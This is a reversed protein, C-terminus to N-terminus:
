LGTRLLDELAQLRTHICADVDGDAASVWCDGSALSPDAILNIAAHLRQTHLIAEIGPRDDPHIRVDVRAPGGLADIAEAVLAIVYGRDRIEHKFVRQVIERIMVPLNEQLNHQWTLHQKQLDALLSALANGDEQTLSEFSAVKPSQHAKIVRSPQLPYARKTM